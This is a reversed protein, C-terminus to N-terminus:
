PKCIRVLDIAFDCKEKNATQWAHVDMRSTCGADELLAESKDSSCMLVSSFGGQSRATVWYASLDDLQGPDHQTAAKLLDQGQLRSEPNDLVFTEVSLAVKTLAAAERFLNNAANASAALLILASVLIHM